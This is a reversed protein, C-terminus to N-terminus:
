RHHVQLFLFFLMGRGGEVRHTDLFMLRGNANTPLAMAENLVRRVPLRPSFTLSYRPLGFKMPNRITEVPLIGCPPKELEEATVTAVFFAM